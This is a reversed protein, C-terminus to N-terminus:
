FTTWTANPFSLNGAPITIATMVDSSGLNSPVGFAPIGLTGGGSGQGYPLTDLFVCALYSAGTTLAVPTATLSGTTADWGSFCNISTASCNGSSCDLTESSSAIFVAKIDNLIYGPVTLYYWLEWCNSVSYGSSDVFVGGGSDPFLVAYYYSGTSSSDCGATGSNCAIQIKKGISGCSATTVKKIKSSTLDANRCQTQGTSRSLYTCNNGSCGTLASLFLFQFIQFVQKM